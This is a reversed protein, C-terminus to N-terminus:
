PKVVVQPRYVTAWCPPDGISIGEYPRGLHARDDKCILESYYRDLDGPDDLVGVDHRSLVRGQRDRIEAIVDGWSYFIHVSWTGDPSTASKYPRDDPMLSNWFLVGGVVGTALLAGLMWVVIPFFRRVFSESDSDSM